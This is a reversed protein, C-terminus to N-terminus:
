DHVASAIQLVLYAESIGPPRIFVWDQRNTQQLKKPTIPWCSIRMQGRHKVHGILLTTTNSKQLRLADL